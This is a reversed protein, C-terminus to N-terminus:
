GRSLEFHRVAPAEDLSTVTPHRSGSVTGRQHETASRQEQYDKKFSTAM